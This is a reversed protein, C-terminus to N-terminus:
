IIEIKTKFKLTFAVTKILTCHKLFLPNFAFIPLQGLSFHDRLNPPRTAYTAVKFQPPLFM